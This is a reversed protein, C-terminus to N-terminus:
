RIRQKSVKNKSTIGTTSCILKKEGETITPHDNPSNYGFFAFLLCWLLSVANFVYFIMPWGYNSSAILGSLLMSLLTGIQSGEFFYIM